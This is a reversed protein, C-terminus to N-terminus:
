VAEAKGSWPAPPYTERGWRWNIDLITGPTEISYLAKFAM